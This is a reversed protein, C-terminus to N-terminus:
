AAGAQRAAEELEPLSPPLSAVQSSSEELDALSGPLSAVEAVPESPAPSPAPPRDESADQKQAGAEPDVERSAPAAPDPAAGPVVAAKLALPGLCYARPGSCGRLAALTQQAPPAREFPDLDLLMAFAYGVGAFPFVVCGLLLCVMPPCCSFVLVICLPEWTRVWNEPRDWCGLMAVRHLCLAGLAILGVGASLMFATFFRLNREGVCTGMWYCHHDLRLVCRGCITCHGCRYPRWLRCRRCWKQRWAGGGPLRRERIRLGDDFENCPAPDGPDPRPTGPDVLHCLLCMVIALCACCATLMKLCHSIADRAEILLLFGYGGAICVISAATALPGGLAQMRREWEEAKDLKELETQEM